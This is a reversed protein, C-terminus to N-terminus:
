HEENELQERWKEINDELNSGYLKFYPIIDEMLEYLPLVIKSILCMQYSATESEYRDCLYSVTLGKKREMDGQHHFEEMLLESWKSSIEFSKANNSLDSCHIICNLIEQQRNFKEEEDVYQVMLECLTNGTKETLPKLQKFKYSLSRYLSEHKSIDTSLVCDVMRKKIIRFEEKSLKSLINSNPKSLVKFASSIHYQELVSIGNYKIAIPDNTNVLYSNTYGPHKYDHVICALFLAAIDLSTLDLDIIISSNSIITNATQLVDSAHLDNHYPILNDYGLRIRDIFNIFHDQNLLNHSFLSFLSFINFSINYLTKERGVTNVYTFINFNMDDFESLEHHHPLNNLISQMDRNHNSNNSTFEHLDVTFDNISKKNNSNPGAKPSSPPSEFQLIPQSEQELQIHKFNSLLEKKNNNDDEKTKKFASKKPKTEVVNAKSNSNSGSVDKTNSFELINRKIKMKEKHIVTASKKNKRAFNTVQNVMGSDERKETEDLKMGVNTNIEKSKCEYREFPNELNVGSISSMGRMHHPKRKSKSERMKHLEKVKKIDNEKEKDFTDLSFQKLMEQEKEDDIYKNHFQNIANSNLINKGICENGIALLVWELENALDNENLEILRSKCKLLTSEIRKPTTEFVDCINTYISKDIETSTSITKSIEILKNVNIMNTSENICPKLKSIIVQVKNAIENSSKKPHQLTIIKDLFSKFKTLPFTAVNLENHEKPSSDEFILSM